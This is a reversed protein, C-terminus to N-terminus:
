ATKWRNKWTNVSGYHLWLRPDLLTYHMDASIKLTIKNAYEVFWIGQQSALLRGGKRSM